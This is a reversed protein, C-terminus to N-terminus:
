WRTSEPGDARLLSDPGDHRRPRHRVGAAELRTADSTPRVLARVQKGRVLLADVVKGGLAGTGGVVLVPGNNTM